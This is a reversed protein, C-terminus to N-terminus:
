FLINVCVSYSVARIVSRATEMMGLRSDGIKISVLQAGPAM